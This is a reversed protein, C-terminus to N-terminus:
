RPASTAPASPPTLRFFHYSRWDDVRHDEQGSVELGARAFLALAEDPGFREM